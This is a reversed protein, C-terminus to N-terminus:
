LFASNQQKNPLNRGFENVKRRELLDKDGRLPVTKVCNQGRQGWPKRGHTSNRHAVPANRASQNSENYIPAGISWGKRPTQNIAVRLVLSKMAVLASALLPPRTTASKRFDASRLLATTKSINVKAKWLVAAVNSPDQQFKQNQLLSVDNNEPITKASTSIKSYQQCMWGLKQWSLWNWWIWPKPLYKWSM